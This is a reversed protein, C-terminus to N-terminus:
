ARARRRYITEFLGQRDREQPYTWYNDNLGPGIKGEAVHGHCGSCAVPLATRRPCAPKVENYPDEGPGLFQKVAPTDRGEQPATTSILVEGTIPTASHSSRDHALLRRARVCGRCRVGSWRSTLAESRAISM